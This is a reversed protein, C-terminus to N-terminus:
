CVRNPERAAWASFHEFVSGEWKDSLAEVPSPLLKGCPTDPTSISADRVLMQDGGPGSIQALMKEM